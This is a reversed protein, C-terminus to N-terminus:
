IRQGVITVRGNYPITPKITKIFLKVGQLLLAKQWSLNKYEHMPMWVIFEAEEKSTLMNLFGKWFTEYLGVDTTGDTLIFNYPLAWDTLQNMSPDYPHPSGYPYVESSAPAKAVAGHFFCLHIGNNVGGLDDYYEGAGDLQPILTMYANGEVMPVTGAVTSITDTAGDPLYDYLNASFIEWAYSYSGTDVCEYYNNEGTVFYVQGIMTSSATPLDARTDVEGQYDVEDSNFKGGGIGDSCTLSYIKTDQYISKTVAPSTKSTIDTAPLNVIDSLSRITCTRSYNDFDYWIGLRNKIAILFASIDVEPVHKQLNITVYDYFTWVPGSTITYFGKKLAKFNLLCIKKFDPDDLIDGTLNWGADIFIRQLVYKLYPYPVYARDYELAINNTPAWWVYNIVDIDTRPGAGWTENKVPFFAYDFDGPDGNMVDLIHTTILTKDPDSAAGNFIRDGEYDVTTMKRSKIEQWFDASETLFYCFINTQQPDNLNPETREVKVKGRFAPIGNDMLIADIGIGDNVVQWTGRYGLLRNNRATNKVQFPFSYAGVLVDTLQLFPNNQELELQADPFLDLTEGNIQISVM